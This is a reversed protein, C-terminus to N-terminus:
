IAGLRCRRVKRRRLHGLTNFAYKISFLIDSEKNM